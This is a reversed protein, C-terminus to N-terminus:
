APNGGVATVPTRRANSGPRSRVVTGTREAMTPVVAASAATIAATTNPELRDWTM